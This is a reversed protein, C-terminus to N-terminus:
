WLSEYCQLRSASQELELCPRCVAPLKPRSVAINMLLVPPRRQGPLRLQEHWLRVLLDHRYASDNSMMSNSM